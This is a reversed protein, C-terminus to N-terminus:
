KSVRFTITTIAKRLKNALRRLVSMTPPMMRNPEMSTTTPVARTSLTSAEMLRLMMPETVPWMWTYLAFDASSSATM